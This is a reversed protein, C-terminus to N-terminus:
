QRKRYAKNIIRYVGASISIGSAAAAREIGHQAM